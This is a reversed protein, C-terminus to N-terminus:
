NFKHRVLEMPAQFPMRLQLAPKIHPKNSATFGSNSIKQCGWDAADDDNPAATLPPLTTCDSWPVDPTMMNNDHNWTYRSFAICLGLTDVHQSNEYEPTLEGFVALFWWWYRCSSGQSGKYQSSCTGHGVEPQLDRPMKALAMADGLNNDVHAPTNDIELPACFGSCIAATTGEGDNLFLGFGPACSNRYAQGAIKVPPKRDTADLGGLLVDGCGFDVTTGYCGKTPMDPMPSGCATVNTGVKLDQTLPDCGPNCVGAVTEGNSELFDAYRTCSHNQDCAQPAGDLGCIQKCIGSVCASGKECDDYGMPGTPGITCAEDIAKPVAPVPACGIHGIPNPDDQDQFWTCKEGANCGTQTAPNCTTPTEGGSGSDPLRIGPKDSGGGCAMLGFFLAGLAHKKM